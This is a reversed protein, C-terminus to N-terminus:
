KRHWVCSVGCMELCEQASFGAQQGKGQYRGMGQVSRTNELDSKVHGKEGKGKDGVCMKNNAIM